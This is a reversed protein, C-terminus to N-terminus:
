ICCSIRIALLQSGLQTTLWDSNETKNLSIYIWFTYKWKWSFIAFIYNSLKKKSVRRDELLKYADHEQTILYTVVKLNNEAAAFWLPIRGLFYIQFYLYKFFKHFWIYNKGNTTEATTAAGSETLLKVVDLHGAQATFFIRSILFILHYKLQNKKRSILFIVQVIYLHGDKRDITLFSSFHVYKTFNPCLM